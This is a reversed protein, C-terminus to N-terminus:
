RSADGTMREADVYTLIVEPLIRSPALLYGLIMGTQGDGAKGRPLTASTGEAKRDGNDIDAGSLKQSKPPRKVLWTGTNM